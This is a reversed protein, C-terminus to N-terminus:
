GPMVPPGGALAIQGPSEWDGQQHPLTQATSWQIGDASRVVAVSGTAADTAAAYVANFHRAMSPLGTVTSLGPIAVANSWTSAGAGKTFSQVAGSSDAGVLCWGRGLSCLAPATAFTTSTTVATAAGWSPNGGSGDAEAVYAQGSVTFGLALDVGNNTLSVGTLANAAPTETHVATWSTLDSSSLEYVTIASGTSVALYADGGLETLAVGVLPAKVPPSLQVASPGQWTGDVLQRLTLGAAGVDISVVTLTGAVNSAAPQNSTSAGVSDSGPDSFPARDGTSSACYLSSCDDTVLADIDPRLQTQVQTTSGTDIAVAAVILGDDNNNDAPDPTEVTYVTDSTPDFQDTWTGPPAEVLPVSPPEGESATGYVDTGSPLGTITVTGTTPTGSFQLTITPLPSNGPIDAHRTEDPEYSFAPQMESM